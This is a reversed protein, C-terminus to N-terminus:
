SLVKGARIVTRKRGQPSIFESASRAALLILDAPCGVQIRGDWSLGMARAPHTTIGPLYDLLPSLHALQVALGFTEILDYSGYPYFVDGVNDSGISVSVGAQTAERLRTIGRQVPTADWAGQLYANTTPLSVLHIDAQACLQLTAQAEGLPQISLSCAHGCVVRGQWGHAITLEAILRLGQADAHLGEDVHFDLDLDHAVAALFVQALKHALNDNRYVFPGLVGGNAKVAVALEQSFMDLSFLAVWQLEMRGAWAHRLHHFVAVSPPTLAEVWDLHTRMARTGMGYAQEIGRGMRETLDQAQWSARHQNIRDIAVFLDGDATGTAEVSFNKDLHVHVDCPSSLLIGQAPVDNNTIRAVQSGEIDVDCVRGELWVRELRM